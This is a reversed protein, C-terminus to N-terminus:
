QGEEPEIFNLCQINYGMQVIGWNQHNRDKAHKLTKQAAQHADEWTTFFTPDTSCGALFRHGFFRQPQNDVTVIFLHCEKGPLLIRKLEAAAFLWVFSSDNIYINQFDWVRKEEGQLLRVPSLSLGLGPMEIECTQDNYKLEFFFRGSDDHESHRVIEVDEFQFGVYLDAWLQKMVKSYRYAQYRRRLSRLFEFM